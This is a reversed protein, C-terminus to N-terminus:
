GSRTSGRPFVQELRQPNASGSKPRSNGVSEIEMSAMDLLGVRCGPEFEVLVDIDSDPRFDDRLIPGFFSLRRIHNRRSFEATRASDVSICSSM